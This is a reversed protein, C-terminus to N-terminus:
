GEMDLFAVVRDDKVADLRVPVILNQMHANSLGKIIVPIYNETHGFWDGTEGTRSEVLCEFTKRLQSRWFEMRKVEGLARLAAARRVRERQPVVDKMVAALTGQRKSYPFAHVYAVPLDKLLNLTMLFDQEDEVPFGAMVDVGIAANPMTEKIKSVLQVFLGPKYRRNMASLVKESGSQ